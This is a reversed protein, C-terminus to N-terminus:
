PPRIIEYRSLPATVWIAPTAPYHRRSPFSLHKQLYFCSFLMRSWHKQWWTHNSNHTKTLIHEQFTDLNISWISISRPKEGCRKEQNQVHAIRDGCVRTSNAAQRCRDTLWGTTCWLSRLRFSCPPVFVVALEESLELLEWNTDRQVDILVIILWHAAIIATVPNFRRWKQCDLRDRAFLCQHIRCSTKSPNFSWYNALYLIAPMTNAVATSRKLIHENIRRLFMLRRKGEWTKYASLMWTCKLEPKNAHQWVFAEANM